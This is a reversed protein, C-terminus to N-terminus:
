LNEEIWKDLSDQNLVKTVIGAILMAEDNFKKIKNIVEEKNWSNKIPKITITNDPAEKLRFWGPYNYESKVEEYEVLVEDIGGLECYKKIFSDSPRPLSRNKYVAVKMLDQSYHSFESIVLSPDTTAIIKKCKYTDFSYKETDTAVLFGDKVKYCQLLSIGSNGFAIYWDGEKIEEDSLFYLHQPVNYKTVWGAAFYVLENFQKWLRSKEDKTPLMVVKVKKFM